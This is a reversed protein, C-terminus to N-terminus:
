NLFGIKKSSDDSPSIKIEGFRSEYNRINEELAKLFRKAHAPSTIIRSRVRAKPAQPQVFIFDFIVESESHTILAINSYVGQSTTEDIEIQIQKQAIDQNKPEM